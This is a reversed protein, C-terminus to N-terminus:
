FLRFWLTIEAPLVYEGILTFAAQLGALPFTPGGDRGVKQQWFRENRKPTTLRGLEQRLHFVDPTHAPIAPMEDRQANLPTWNGLGFNVLVQRVTEGPLRGQLEAKAM